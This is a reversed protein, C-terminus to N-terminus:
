PASPAGDVLVVCANQPDHLVSVPQGSGIVAPEFACLLALAMQYAVAANDSAGYNVRVLEQHPASRAAQVDVGVCAPLPCVSGSQPSDLTQVVAEVFLPNSKRKDSRQFSDSRAAEMARFVERALTAKSTEGELEYLIAVGASIMEPTVEVKDAGDQGSM